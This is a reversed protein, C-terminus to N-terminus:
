KYQASQRDAVVENKSKSRTAKLPEEKNKLRLLEQQKPQAEKPLAM